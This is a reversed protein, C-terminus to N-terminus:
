FHQNRTRDGLFCLNLAKNWLERIEDWNSFRLTHTHTVQSTTKSKGPTGLGSRQDGRTVLSCRAGFPASHGPRARPGKLPQLPAATVHQPRRGSREAQARLRGAPSSGRGGLARPVGASGQVCVGTSLGPQCRNQIFHPPPAPLAASLQHRGEWRGGSRQPPRSTHGRVEPRAWARLLPPQSKNSM